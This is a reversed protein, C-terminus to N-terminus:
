KGNQRKSTGHRRCEHILSLSLSDFVRARRYDMMEDVSDRQVFFDRFPISKYEESFTGIGRMKVTPVSGRALAIKKCQGNGGVFYFDSDGMLDFDVNLILVGSEPIRLVDSGNEKMPTLGCEEEYVIRFLGAYGEPILVTKPVATDHSQCCLALAPVLLLVLFRQM